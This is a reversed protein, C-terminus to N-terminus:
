IIKAMLGDKYLETAQVTLLQNSIDTESAIYIRIYNSTYGEYIGDKQQEILVTQQSGIFQQLFETQMSEDLQGLTTAREQKQLKSLQNPMTEAPTGQRKSFPFIHMKAFGLSSCFQYTQEFEQATEGPFGVIVDTTIAIDPVRQRIKEVLARFEATTYPRNMAKLVSDSGSQLPLHLHKALRPETAMIDLLADDIEICELSGLRLRQLEPVSLAAHVADALNNSGALEKGYAGLHIGLLVVERFGQQTLLEVQTRIDELSRSRLRGRAYPIICYSCFQNCGEQIKLFARTKDTHTGTPMQEFDAAAFINEVTSAQQPQQARLQELVLPVLQARNQNGVILHVGEIQKVEQEATQPYCGTVVILAQPNNRIFRRITQKSKNQGVNTVVCTNIIYVDAQEEPAVVECGAQIFMEQISQSDAQNVKCGLTYIAIKM